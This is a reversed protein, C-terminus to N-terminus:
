LLLLRWGLSAAVVAAIMAVWFVPGAVGMVMRAFRNAYREATPFLPAELAATTAPAAHSWQQPPLCCIYEGDQWVDISVTGPALFERAGDIGAEFTKFQRTDGDPRSLTWGDEDHSLTFHSLSPQRRTRSRELAQVTM